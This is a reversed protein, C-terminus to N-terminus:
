DIKGNTLSLSIVALDVYVFLVVVFDFDALVRLRNLVIQDSLNPSQPPLPPRKPWHFIQHAWSLDIM